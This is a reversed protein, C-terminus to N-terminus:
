GYRRQRAVKFDLNTEAAIMRGLKILRENEPQKSSVYELMNLAM